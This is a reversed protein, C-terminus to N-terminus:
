MSNTVTKQMQASFIITYTCINCSVPIRAFLSPFPDIQSSSQSCPDVGLLLHGLDSWVVLDSLFSPGGNGEEKEKRGQETRTKHELRRFSSCFLLQKGQAWWVRRVPLPGHGWGGDGDRSPSQPLIPRRCAAPTAPADNSRQCVRWFQGHIPVPYHGASRCTSPNDSSDDSMIAM